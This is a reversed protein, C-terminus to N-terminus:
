KVVEFGTNQLQNSMRELREHEVDNGAIIAALLKNELKAQISKTPDAARQHCNRLIRTEAMQLSEFQIVKATM